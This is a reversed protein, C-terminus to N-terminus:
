LLKCCRLICFKLMKMCFIKWTFLFKGVHFLQQEITTDCRDMRTWSWQLLHRISRNNMARGALLLSISEDQSAWNLHQCFTHLGSVISHCIFISHFHVLDKYWIYLTDVLCFPQHRKLRHALARRRDNYIAFIPHSGLDPWAPGPGSSLQPHM